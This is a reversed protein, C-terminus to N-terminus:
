SFKFLKNIIEEEEQHNNILSIANQICLYSIPISLNEVSLLQGLREIFKIEKMLKWSLEDKTLLGNILSLAQYIIGEENCFTLDYLINLNEKELLSLLFAENEKITNFLTIL